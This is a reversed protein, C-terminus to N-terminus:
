VMDATKVTGEEAEKAIAAAMAKATKSIIMLSGDPEDGIEKLAKVASDRGAHIRALELANDKPLGCEILARATQHILDARAIATRHNLILEKACKKIGLKRNVEHHTTSELWIALSDRKDEILPILRTRRLRSESRREAPAQSQQM